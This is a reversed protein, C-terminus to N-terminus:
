ECPERPIEEQDLGLERDYYAELRGLRRCGQPTLEVMEELRVGGWGPLYVGPEITFVMGPALVQDSRPALSPAEHTALGVGHGLSHTFYDGFGASVIVRRAIADAEAGTMGPRIQVLAHRQARRVAAYVKAFQPDAAKLGGAVVTRTMDSCYGELRAGVDFIVPEGAQIVRDGPEAHPEAANPGSAVIPPFAVGDAGADEVMRAIIRALERESRGVIEGALVKELVGEMLALSRALAEMEQRDKHQRLSAVLGQTPVLEVKLGVAAIEQELQRLQEVLLAEAEFGLRSLPREKLWTAVEPALGHNYIRVAFLPAQQRASLQYRPDTFLIADSPTILLAGASEGWQGDEARYGSLYRRNAPLTVLLGDLEERALRRRLKSLRLKSM